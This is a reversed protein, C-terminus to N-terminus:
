DVLGVLRRAIVDTSEELGIVAAEGLGVIHAFCDVKQRREADLIHLFGLSGFLLFFLLSRVYKWDVPDDVLIVSLDVCECLLFLDGRNPFGELSHYFPLFHFDPLCKLSYIHFPNLHERLLCLVILILTSHAFFVKEQVSEPLPLLLAVAQLM